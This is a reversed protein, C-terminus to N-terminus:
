GVGSGGTSVSAFPASTRLFLVLGPPAGRVRPGRIAENFVNRVSGVLEFARSVPWLMTMNATIAPQLTDHTLTLRSGLYLVEM